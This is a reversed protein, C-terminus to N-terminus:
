FTVKFLLMFGPVTYKHGKKSEPNAQKFERFEEIKEFMGRMMRSTYKWFYTGWAFRNWADINNALKYVAAPIGTKVDQGHLGKLMFVLQILMVYDEDQLALYNPFMIWDELDKLGLRSDSIDPFLRARLQSNSQGKEDYLLDVYPGVKLGCILIYETEGFDLQIGQIDFLFRGMEFIQPSRIEHLMMMHVLLPDGHPIHMGLFIGFPSAEFLVRQSQTLRPFYKKIM